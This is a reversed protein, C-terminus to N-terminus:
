KTIQTHLHLHAGVQILFPIINMPFVVKCLAFTPIGQSTMGLGASYRPEDSWCGNGPETTGLYEESVVKDYPQCTGSILANCRVAAHALM